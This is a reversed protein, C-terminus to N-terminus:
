VELPRAWVIVNDTYHRTTADFVGGCTVLALAPAGDRRFLEATPLADKPIQERGTVEYALVRGDALEVHVREGPDLERLRFFAGPGARASDVHATVIAVGQEAGPAPGFRYWGAAAVDDPIEM